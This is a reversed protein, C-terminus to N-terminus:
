GYENMVQTSSVPLLYSKCSPLNVAPVADAPSHTSFSNLSACSGLKLLLVLHCSIRRWSYQTRRRRKDGLVKASHVHYNIQPNILVRYSLYGESMKNCVSNIFNKREYRPYLLSSSCIQRFNPMIKLIELKIFLTKTRKFM